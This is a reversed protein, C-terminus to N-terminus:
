NERKAFNRHAPEYAYKEPELLLHLRGVLDQDIDDFCAIFELADVVSRERHYLRPEVLASFIDAVTVIRCKLSLDSTGNPYGSGDTKEHHNLIMQLVDGSDVFPRCDNYSDLPHRKIAKFEDDTLKGPKFLIERPTHIKGADHLMGALAVERIDKEPLGVDLALQVGLNAVGAVHTYLEDILSMRNFLARLGKNDQIHDLAGVMYGDIRDADRYIM